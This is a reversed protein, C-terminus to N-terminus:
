PVLTMVFCRRGEAEVVVDELASAVCRGTVRCSQTVYSLLNDVGNSGQHQEVCNTASSVDMTDPDSGLRQTLEDSRRYLSLM